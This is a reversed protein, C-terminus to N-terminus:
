YWIRNTPPPPFYVSLTGKLLTLSVVLSSNEFKLVASKCIKKVYGVAKSKSNDVIDNLMKSFTHRIKSSTSEVPDLIKVDSEEEERDSDIQHSETIEKAIQISDLDLSQLDYPLSNHTNLSNSQTNKNKQDKEDSGLSSQKELYREYIDSHFQINITVSLNGEYYMPFNVWFGGDDDMEPEEASFLLPLSDGINLDEARLSKLFPTLEIRDLSRQIRALTRTNWVEERWFDWFLRTFIVNLSFMSSAMLNNSNPNKNADSGSYQDPMRKPCFSLKEKVWRGKKFIDIIYTNFSSRSSNGVYKNLQPFETYISECNAKIKYYWREKERACIGFIYLYNENLRLPTQRHYSPVVFPESNSFTFDVFTSAPADITMQCLVDRDTSFKIPFKKNWIRGMTLDKPVIEVNFETLDLAIKLSSKMKKLSNNFNDLTGRPKLVFKDEIVYLTLTKNQLIAYALVLDSNKFKNDEYNETIYVWGKRKKSASLFKTDDVIPVKRINEIESEYYNLLDRRYQIIPFVQLYCYFVFLAFFTMAFLIGYLFYRFNSAHVFLMIAWLVLAFYIVHIKRIEFNIPRLLSSDILFTHYPNMRNELGKENDAEDLSQTRSDPFQDPRDAFFKIDEKDISVKKTLYSLTKNQLDRFRSM